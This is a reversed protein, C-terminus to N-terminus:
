GETDITERIKKGTGEANGPLADAEEVDSVEESVAVEHEAAGMEVLALMYAITSEAGQNQNIGDPELGDYCGGTAPDFMPVGLDNEGMFWEFARHAERRWFEDGTMRYAHLFASVAAHAELPQQDFRAREGGRRYFGNNGVPVLHDADMRQIECLWRLAALSAEVMEDNGMWQGCAMLAHPLKANDYSLIDEFWPWETSSCNRYM